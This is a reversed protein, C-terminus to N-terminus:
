CVLAPEFNIKFGKAYTLQLGINGNCDPEFNLQKKKERKKKKKKNQADEKLPAFLFLYFLFAQPKDCVSTTTM